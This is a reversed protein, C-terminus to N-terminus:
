QMLGLKRLETYLKDKASEFNYKTATYNQKTGTEEFVNQIGQYQESWDMSYRETNKRSPHFTFISPESIKGPYNQTHPPHGFSGSEAKKIVGNFDLRKAAIEAIERSLVHMYDEPVAERIKKAIKIESLYLNSDPFKGCIKEFGIQQVGTFSTTDAKLPALNNPSYAFKNKQPAFGVQRPSIPPIVNFM